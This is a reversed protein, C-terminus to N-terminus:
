RESERDPSSGGSSGERSPESPGSQTNAEKQAKYQKYGKYISKGIKIATVAGAVVTLGTALGSLGDVLSEAGSIVDSAEAASMPVDPNLIEGAGSTTVGSAKDFSLKKFVSLPSNPNISDNWTQRLGEATQALNNAAETQGANM